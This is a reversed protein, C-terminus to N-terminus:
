LESKMEAGCNPCFKFYNSVIDKAGFGCESCSYCLFKNPNIFSQGIKIWEGKKRTPTVSPLIDEVFETITMDPAHFGYKIMGDHVAERSVCDECTEQELLRKYDKLWEALQRHEEGCKKCRALHENICETDDCYMEDVTYGDEFTRTNAVTEKEEAVEEAHKIAENITM